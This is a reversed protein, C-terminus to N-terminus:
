EASLAVPVSRARPGGEQVAAPYEISRLVRPIILFAPIDAFVLSTILTAYVVGEVGAIRALFISLPLSTVAMLVACVTQFRIVGAGNLFMGIPGGITVLFAWGGLGLILLFSPSVEGRTWAETLRQGFVVLAVILPLALLISAFTSRVAAPRRTASSSSEL